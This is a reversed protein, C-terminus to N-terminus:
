RAAPTPTPMTPAVAPETMPMMVPPPTTGGFSEDSVLPVITHYEQSKGDGFDQKGTAYLAPLFYTDTGDQSWSDYRMWAIHATEITAKVEKVGENYVYLPNRGGAMLRKTAEETTILSYKSSDVDPALWINGGNVKKENLNIQLSIGASPWSGMDYVNKGNMVSPYTISTVQPYWMGCPAIMSTAGGPETNASVAEEKMPMPCPSTVGDAMDWPHDIIPTGKAYGGLGHRTMFDNAIAMVEEDSLRVPQQIKADTAAYAVPYNAETWFSLNRGMSDFSWTLGETDKWSLNFSRLNPNEGLLQTPLGTAVALAKTGITPLAVEKARLVDAETGWTPLTASVSYSVKAPSPMPYPRAIMKAGEPSMATGGGVNANMTVSVAQDTAPTNVAVAGITPDMPVPPAVMYASFASPRASIAEPTGLVATPSGLAPLMGFGNSSPTQTSPSPIAPIQIPMDPTRACGAGLIAIVSLAVLPKKM